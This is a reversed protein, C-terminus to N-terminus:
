KNKFNKMIKESGRELMALEYMKDQSFYLTM